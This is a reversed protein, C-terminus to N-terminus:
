EILTIGALAKAAKQFAPTLDAGTPVCLFHDSDANELAINAAGQCHNYDDLSDTAMDALLGTVWATPSSSRYAGSNDDCKKGDLAGGFAITFVEIGAAKPPQAASFADACPNSGPKNAAGDTM